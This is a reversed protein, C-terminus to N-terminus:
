PNGGVDLHGDVLRDADKEVRRLLVSMAKIDGSLTAISVRIDAIQGVAALVKEAASRAEDAAHTVERISASMEGFRREGADLRDNHHDLRRKVADFEARTPHNKALWWALAPLLVFSALPVGIALLEKIDAISM